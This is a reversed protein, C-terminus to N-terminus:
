SVALTELLMHKCGSRAAAILLDAFLSSRKGGFGARDGVHSIDPCPFGGTLFEIGRTGEVTLDQVVGCVLGLPLLGPDVVLGAGIRSM